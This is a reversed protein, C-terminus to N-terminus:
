LEVLIRSIRTGDYGPHGLEETDQIDYNWWIRSMRTGGYGPYGQEVM